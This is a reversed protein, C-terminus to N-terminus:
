HDARTLFLVMRSDGEAVPKVTLKPLTDAVHLAFTPLLENTKEDLAVEIRCRTSLCQVAQVSFEALGKAEFAEWIKETATAAWTADTPEQRFSHEIAAIKDQWERVEQARTQVDGLEPDPAAATTSVTDLQRRVDTLERDLRAVQQQLTTVEQLLKKEPAPRHTNTCGSGCSTPLAPSPLTLSARTNDPRAVIASYTQKEAVPEKLPSSLYSGWGLAVMSSVTLFFYSVRM